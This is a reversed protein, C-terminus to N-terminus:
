SFSISFFSHAVGHILWQKTLTEKSFGQPNEM